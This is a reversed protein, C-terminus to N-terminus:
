ISRKKMVVHEISYNGDTQTTKYIVVKSGIITERNFFTVSKNRLVSKLKVHKNCSTSIKYNEQSQFIVLPKDNTYSRQVRKNKQVM